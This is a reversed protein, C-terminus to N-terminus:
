ASFAAPLADDVRAETIDRPLVVVVPGPRGAMSENVAQGTVRHIDAASEPEM